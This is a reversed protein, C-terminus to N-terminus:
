YDNEQVYNESRTTNSSVTIKEETPHFKTITVFHVPTFQQQRVSETFVKLFTFPVTNIVALSM